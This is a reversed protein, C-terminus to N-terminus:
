MLLSMIMKISTAKQFIKGKEILFKSSIIFPFQLFSSLLQDFCHNTPIIIVGSSAAASLGLLSCILGLFQNHVGPYPTLQIEKSRDPASPLRIHIFVIARNISSISWGDLLIMQRTYICSPRHSSSDTHWTVWRTNISSSDEEAPKKNCPTTKMSLKDEEQM